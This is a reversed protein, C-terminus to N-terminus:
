VYYRRTTLLFRIIGVLHARKYNDAMFDSCTGCPISLDVRVNEIDGEFRAIEILDFGYPELCEKVQDAKIM